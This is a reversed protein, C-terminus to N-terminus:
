WLDLNFVAQFKMGYLNHDRLKEHLVLNQRLNRTMKACPRPPPPPILVRKLPFRRLHLGKHPHYMVFSSFGGCSCFFACCAPLLGYFPAFGHCGSGELTRLLLMDAEGAVKPSWMVPMALRPCTNWPKLRWAKGRLQAVAPAPLPLAQPAALLVGPWTAPLCPPPTRTNSDSGESIFSIFNAHFQVRLKQTKQQPLHKKQLRTTIYEPFSWSMPTQLNGYANCYQEKWGITGGSYRYTLKM